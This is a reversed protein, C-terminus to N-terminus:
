HHLRRVLARHAAAVCAPTGQRLHGYPIRVQVAFQEETSNAGRKLVLSFAAAGGDPALQPRLAVCTSAGLRGLALGCTAQLQVLLRCPCVVRRVAALGPSRAHTVPLRRLQLM